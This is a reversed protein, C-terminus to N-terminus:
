SGERLMADTDPVQEILGDQVMLRAWGGVSVRNIATPFGSLTLSEYLAPDIDSFTSVADFLADEDSSILEAARTVAAAFREAIEPNAALRKDTMVYSAITVEPGVDLYPHGVVHVDDGAMALFPEVIYAADVQDGTLAAAQEAFGLEVLDVDAPDVGAKRLSENLSVAAINNLANVAIRRGKLDAMTKISDDTAIVAAMDTDGAPNPSSGAAIARLGLGQDNALLFTVMNSFGIDYQGSVLGPIIASSTNATEITVDLGEDEFFGRQDAAWVAATELIPLVAVKVPIPQEAGDGTTREGSDDSDGCAALGLAAIALALVAIARVAYRM